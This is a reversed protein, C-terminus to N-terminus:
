WLEDTYEDTGPLTPIFPTAWLVEGLGASRLADGQKAFGREWDDSPDGDLFYLHIFRDRDPRPVDAPSDALMPLPSFALCLAASSEAFVGPLHVDRYWRDLDDQSVNEGRRGVISVLGSFPHDLALEAPVADEDRYAAWDHKAIVTYVHDRAEFMRGNAHLWNV